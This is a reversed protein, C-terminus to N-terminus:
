KKRKGSMAFAVCAVTLGIILLSMVRTNANTQQTKGDTKLTENSTLFKDLLDNAADIQHKSSVSVQMALDKNADFANNTVGSMANLATELMEGAADVVGGDTTTVNVTSNSVGSVQAGNNDGQAAATGSTNEYNQNTTTSSKNGGFLGM